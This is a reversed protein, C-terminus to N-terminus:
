KFRFSVYSTPNKPIYRIRSAKKYGGRGRAVVGYRITGYLDTRKIWESMM